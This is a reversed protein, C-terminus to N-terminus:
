KKAMKSFDAINAFVDVFANLIKLRNNKLKEDKDMILVNEFFDDIPDKLKALETLAESYSDDKLLKEINDSAKEISTTLNNEVVNLLSKDFDIGLDKDRLNNARAFATALNDFVEVDKKRANDLAQARAIFVLPEAVRVASVAEISDHDVQSDKLSVKTRTIVFDIVENMVKQKDFKIGDELYLDLSYSIADVFSFNLGSRLIAIAGIAGRRLAFPDSSGTPAQGVAFMGCLNDIKDAIAVCKACNSTPVDDGAFKPMYHEKISNAVQENEKSHLAYYYGMIGQVQTFEIVASTILDAKCLLGARAADKVDNDPLHSAKAIYESLKSLRNAKSKMTGLQEQFVVEDLKDVYSELSNKRDEDFFFKADYLRAAVVRENGDVITAECKPNGNSIIIFNNTLNGNKNFLPFYRQHVLMADVIIEKPVTLFLKDFTGVMCTPYECLNVVEQMISEPLSAVLGLKKEIDKVQNRISEERESASPVVFARNLADLLESADKLEIPNPALFRHGYSVNSSKVGAYELNVVDNGFMAVIWRIPRAFEESNSGWRQVKIWKIDKIINLFLEPLMDIIKQEPINKQAYVYGDEQILEDASIGKGKAFGIAAKTYQGDKIAIDIKPGKYKETKAEIKEPVGTVLVIIRRPTSYVKVEDYEFLKGPQGAVMAEVQKHASHLEIAPLEETGIEFVIDKNM